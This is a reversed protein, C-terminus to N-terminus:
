ELFLKNIFMALLGPDNVSCAESRPGSFFFFILLVVLLFSLVYKLSSLFLFPATYFASQPSNNKPNSFLPVITTVNENAHHFCYDATQTKCQGFLFAFAFVSNPFDDIFFWSHMRDLLSNLPRSTHCKICVSKFTQPTDVHYVSKYTLHLYYSFLDKKFHAVSCDTNRLQATTFNEQNKPSQLLCQEWLHCWTPGLWM